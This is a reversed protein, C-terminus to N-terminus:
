EVGGLLLLAEAPSLVKVPACLDAPYHAQNGTVLIRDTTALAAALFIEDDADPLTPASGPGVQDGPAFVTLLSAVVQPSFSFKPRLLVERYEALIPASWALRIKGEVAARLIKDCTGGASLAASVVVNTDIVWAPAPKGV